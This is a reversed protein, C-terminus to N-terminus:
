RPHFWKKLLLHLRRYYRVALLSLAYDYLLFALNGLALFLWRLDVGFVTFSEQPVGLFKVALFYEACIVANFFLLKLLLAAGRPFRREFIAKLMPYCGFLMFFLLVAEKDAAILFSLLSIAFYVAWAWGAGFEIVVFVNPIGALAPFAYTGVPILGTLFMLATGVAAIMSCVALRVTRGSM